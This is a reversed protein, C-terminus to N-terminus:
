SPALHRPCNYANGNSGMFLSLLVSGAITEFKYHETAKLTGKDDIQVSCKM